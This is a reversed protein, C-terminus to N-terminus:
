KTVKWNVNGKEGRGTLEEVAETIMDALTQTLADVERGEEDLEKPMDDATRVLREWIEHIVSEKEAPHNAYFAGRFLVEPATFIMDELRNFKVGNRELKKLSNATYELKYPKGDYEFEIRTKTSKAM